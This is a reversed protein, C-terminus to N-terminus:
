ESSKQEKNRVYIKKDDCNFIYKWGCKEFFDGITTELYLSYIRRKSMDHCVYDLLTTAVGQNRYKEDVYLYNLSPNFSADDLVGCGAIIEDSLIVVYWQPIAMKNRLNDRMSEIYYQKPKNWKTSFWLAGENILDVKDYLNIIKYEM